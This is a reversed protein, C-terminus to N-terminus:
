ILLWGNMTSLLRGHIRAMRRYLREDRGRLLKSRTPDLALRFLRGLASRHAVVKQSQATLESWGQSLQSIQGSALLEM